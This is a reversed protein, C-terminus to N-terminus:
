YITMRKFGHMGM